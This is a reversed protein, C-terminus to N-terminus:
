NTLKLLLNLVKILSENNTNEQEALKFYKISTNHNCYLWLIGLAIFTDQDTAYKIEGSEIRFILDYCPCDDETRSSNIIISLDRDILFILRQLAKTLKETQTHCIVLKKLIKLDDLQASSLKEYTREAHVFDRLQFYHNGLMESM